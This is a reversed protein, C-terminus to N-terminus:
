PWPGANQTLRLGSKTWHIWPDPGRKVGVEAEKKKQAFSHLCLDFRLRGSGGSCVARYHPHESWGRRFPGGQWRWECGERENVCRLISDTFPRHKKATRTQCNFSASHCRHLRRGRPRFKWKLLSNARIHPAYRAVNKRRCFQGTYCGHPPERRSLCSLPISMNPKILFCSPIWSEISLYLSENWVAFISTGVYNGDPICIAIVRFLPMWVATLGALGLEEWLYFM